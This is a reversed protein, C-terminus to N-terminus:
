PAVGTIEYNGILGTVINNAREMVQAETIEVGYTRLVRIGAAIDAILNLVTPRPSPQKAAAEQYAAWQKRVSQELCARSERWTRHSHGVVTCVAKFAVSDVACTCCHASHNDAEDDSQSHWCHVHRNAAEAAAVKLEIDSPRSAKVDELIARASPGLPAITETIRPTKM